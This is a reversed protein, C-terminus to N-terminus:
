IPGGWQLLARFGRETIFARAPRNPGRQVLGDVTEVLGRDELAGMTRLDNWGHAEVEPQARQLMALMRPTLKPRREKCRRCTTGHWDHEPEPHPQPCGARHNRSCRFDNVWREGSRYDFNHIGGCPMCRGLKGCGPWVDERGRAQAEEYSKFKGM